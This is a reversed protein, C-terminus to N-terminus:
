GVHTVGFSAGPSDRAEDSRASAGAAPVMDTAAFESPVSRAGASLVAVAAYAAAAGKSRTAAALCRRLWPTLTWTRATRAPRVRTVTASFTRPFVSLSPLITVSAGYVARATVIRAM